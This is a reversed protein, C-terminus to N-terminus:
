QRPPVTYTNTGGAATKKWQAHMKLCEECGLTSPTVNRVTSVHECTQAM